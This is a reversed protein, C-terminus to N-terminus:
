RALPELYDLRVWRRRKTYKGNRASSYTAAFELPRILARGELIHEIEARYPWGLRGVNAVVKMGVKFDM